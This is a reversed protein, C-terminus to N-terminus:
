LHFEWINKGDKYIMLCITVPTGEPCGVFCEIAMFTIEIGKWRWRWRDKTWLHDKSFTCLHKERFM